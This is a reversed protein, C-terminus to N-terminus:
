SIKGTAEITSVNHTHPPDGATTQNCSLSQITANAKFYNIIANGMARFRVTQYDGAGAPDSSQNLKDTEAMVAVKIADGLDDGSLPM